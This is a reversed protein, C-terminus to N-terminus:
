RTGCGRAGALRSLRGRHRAVLAYGIRFPLPVAEVVPAAWALRPLSRLVPALADAGSRRRGDGDVVHVTADRQARALDRLEVDGVASRIPAVRIGREALSAALRSCLGCDGDYLVLEARASM